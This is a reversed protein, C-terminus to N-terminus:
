QTPSFTRSPKWRIKDNCTALFLNLDDTVFLDIELWYSSQVQLQSHGFGILLKQFDGFMLFCVLENFCGTYIAAYPETRNDHNKNLKTSGEHSKHDKSLRYTIWFWVITNGRQHVLTLISFSCGPQFARITFYVPDYQLSKSTTPVEKLLYIKM